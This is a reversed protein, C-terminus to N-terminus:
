QEKVTCGCETRDSEKSSWQVGAGVFVTFPLMETNAVDNTGRPSQWLIPCVGAEIPYTVQDGDAGLEYRYGLNLGNLWARQEEGRTGSLRTFGILLHQDNDDDDVRVRTTFGYTLMHPVAGVHCELGIDDTFNYGVVLGGRSLIEWMFAVTFAGDQAQATLCANTLLLIALFRTM